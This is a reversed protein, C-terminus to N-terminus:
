LTYQLGISLTVSRTLGDINVSRSLMPVAALGAVGYQESIPLSWKALLNVQLQDSGSVAIFSSGPGLVSSEQLRKITLIELGLVFDDIHMEYGIRALLDDGRQLRIIANDSRGRSLQYGVAFLWPASRYSLGFLLDNTGLGPQYSQPLNAANSSGTALKAGAQVSLQDTDVEWVIQNWVLTLDGIGSTHGLPGITRSWPLRATMRSDHSLQIDGDLQISHFTLDDAKGSKGYTYGASIRHGISVDRAGVVCVGADSCQTYLVHPSSALFLAIIFLFRKM